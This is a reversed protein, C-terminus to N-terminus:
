NQYMFPSALGDVLVCANTCHFSYHLRGDSEKELKGGKSAVKAQFVALQEAPVKCSYCGISSIGPRVGSPTQVKVVSGNDDLLPETFFLSVNMIDSWDFIIAQRNLCLM